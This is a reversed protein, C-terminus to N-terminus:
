WKKRQYSLVEYVKLASYNYIRLHDEGQQLLNDVYQTDMQLWWDMERCISDISDPNAWWTKPTWAVAPSTVIPIGAQLFDAAVINFSETYSVQLGIDMHEVLRMFEKHTLWPHEVLMHRSPNVKNFLDRLNKLTVDGEMETRGTLVHLELDLGRQECYSIASLAQTIINKFPRIACFIGVRLTDGHFRKATERDYAEVINPIYFFSADYADQFAVSADYNNCAVYVNEIKQSLAVMEGLLRFGNQECALFSPKSHCVVYFKCSPYRRALLELKEKRVWFAKIIFHSPRKEFLVRDIENDDNFGISEAKFGNNVLANVTLEASVNLGSYTVCEKRIKYAHIFFSDPAPCFIPPAEEKAPFLHHWFRQVKSCIGSLLKCM